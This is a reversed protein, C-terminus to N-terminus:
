LEREFKKLIDLNRNVRRNESNVISIIEKVAEEIDDNIVIYDFNYSYKLEKRATNLRIEINEKDEGRKELRSIMVKLSPPLIFISVADKFIRKVQYAGKVDITMIPIKGSDLISLISKKPTGYYNNHVKAWEIFFGNKILKVFEEKNKFYYDKGEIENKRKERTTATISFVFRRDRKILLNKISSKGGGSPASLIVPFYKRKV